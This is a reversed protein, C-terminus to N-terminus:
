HCRGDGLRKRLERLGPVEEELADAHREILRWIIGQELLPTPIGACANVCVVIREAQAPTELRGIERGDADLVRCVEARFPTPAMTNKLPM